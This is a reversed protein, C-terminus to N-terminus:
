LFDSAEGADLKTVVGSVLRALVRWVLRVLQEVARKRDLAHDVDFRHRRAILRTEAGFTVAARWVVSRLIEWSHCIGSCPKPAFTFTVKVLM